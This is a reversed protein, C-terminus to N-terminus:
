KLAALAKQADSKGVFSDPSDIARQLERRASAADGTKTYAMGIHYAVSPDAPLKAVADKLAALAPVYQAQLFLVWGLADAIEPSFPDSARATTIFRVVSDPAKGSEALVIAL